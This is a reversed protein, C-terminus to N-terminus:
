SEDDGDLHSLRVSAAVGAVAARRSARGNARPPARGVAAGKPPTPDEVGLAKWVQALGERNISEGGENIGDLTYHTYGERSRVGWDQPASGAAVAATPSRKSASRSGRLLSALFPDNAALGLRPPQHSGSGSGSGSGSTSASAEFRVRKVQADAPVPHTENADEGELEDLDGLGGFSGDGAIPPERRKSPVDDFGGMDDDSDGDDSCGTAKAWSATHMSWESEEGEAEIGWEAVDHADGEMAADEGEAESAEEADEAAKAMHRAAKATEEDDPDAIRDLRDRMALERHPLPEALDHGRAQGSFAPGIRGFGEGAVAAAAATVGAGVGGKLQDLADFAVSLRNSFVAGGRDPDSVKREAASSSHGRAWSTTCGQMLGDVAGDDDSSLEQEEATASTMLQRIESWHPAVQDFSGERQADYADAVRGACSGVAPM